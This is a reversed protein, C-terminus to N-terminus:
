YTTRVTCETRIRLVYLGGKKDPDGSVVALEVGPLAPKWVLQDPTVIAHNAAPEKAAPMASQAFTFVPMLLLVVSLFLMRVSM